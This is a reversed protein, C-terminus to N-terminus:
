NVELEKIRMGEGDIVQLQHSGCGSCPDFRRGLSVECSCQMCWAKGPVKLLELKATKAISHHRIADFCFAMADPDVSSLEGIELWITKVETFGQTVAQEEVIQLLSECLSMEHM